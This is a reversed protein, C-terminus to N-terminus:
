YKRKIEPNRDMFDYIFQFEEFICYVKSKDNISSKPNDMRYQYFVQNVFYVRKAFCFTQFWFGNDQYSAGPTENHRIHNASIFTRRYIGSWTYIPFKFVIPYEEPSIVRNYLNDNNQAIQECIFERKGNIDKFYNFDAKIFDLNEQVAIEYLAKYMNREIYDDPEVIGIYEGRAMDLGCNMARGYGGNPRDIIVIRRDEAAFQKVIELSQDTSGDNVCIIEINELTQNVVSNLCEVLYQEVNYIPVIISVKPDASGEMRRTQFPVSKYRFQMGNLVRYEESPLDKIQVYKEYERRDWFYTNKKGSVGLEIFIEEKLKEYLLQFAPVKLTDLYWLSLYLAYNIYSREVEKYIDMNILEERLALLARYFCDWSSERTVSVSSSLGVRQHVLTRYLISIKKAKVLATFTFFMDNTNRLAQFVLRNELVFDRRFLKDWTWGIFVRFINGQIDKYNFPEFDPLQNRLISWHYLQRHKIDEKFRDMKFVCIDVEDRKAKMYASELMDLEFVDDADLISLYEGTAYQLGTNRAVGAGSNEQSLITIRYDIAAYENLIDLSCDTSGDNICIIEIEKLTQYILCDLTERLYEQANYVPMIVSVKIENM